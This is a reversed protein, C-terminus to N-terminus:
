LSSRRANLGAGGSPLMEKSNMVMSVLVDHSEIHFHTIEVGHPLDISVDMCCLCSKARDSLTLPM